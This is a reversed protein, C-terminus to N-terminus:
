APKQTGSSKWFKKIKKILKEDTVHIGDLSGCSYNPIHQIFDTITKGQGDKQIIYEYYEENLVIGYHYITLTEISLVKVYNESVNM